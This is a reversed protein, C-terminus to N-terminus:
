ILTPCWRWSGCIWALGGATAATSVAVFLGLIRWDVDVEIRTTKYTM